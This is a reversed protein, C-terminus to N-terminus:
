AAPATGRLEALGRQMRMRMDTIFAEMEAGREPSQFPGLVLAGGDITSVNAVFDALKASQWFGDVVFLYVTWTRAGLIMRLGGEQWPGIEGDPTRHGEPYLVLPVPSERAAERIKRVGERGTAGSDVVPYQYLRVM